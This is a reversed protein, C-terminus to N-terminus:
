ELYDGAFTMVCITGYTEHPGFAVGIVRFEPDFLNARHGRNRVGDDIILRIVLERGIEGGYAINEGVRKKWKGHRNVRQGTNSGDRGKHGTAGAPGMDRVHDRAGESMGPSPRLARVPRVKKLFRSAERVARVGEKTRISVRGPFKRIKGDYYDIWEAVFKAYKDPDSRALNIERVIDNELDTLYDVEDTKGAYGPAACVLAILLISTVTQHMQRYFM